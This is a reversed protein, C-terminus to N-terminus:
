FYIIILSFSIAWNPVIKGYVGRPGNTRLIAMALHKGKAQAPRSHTQHSQTVIKGLMLSIAVDM